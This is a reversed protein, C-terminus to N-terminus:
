SLVFMFHLKRVFYQNQYLSLEMDINLNVPKFNSFYMNPILIALKGESVYYLKYLENSVM